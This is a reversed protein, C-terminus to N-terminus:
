YVVRLDRTGSNRICEVDLQPSARKENEMHFWMMSKSFFITDICQYINNINLSKHLVLDVISTLVCVGMVEAAMATGIGLHVAIKSITIWKDEDARKIVFGCGSRGNNKSSGDWFGTVAKWRETNNSKDVITKRQRDAGLTAWHDAEQNHERFIHKM